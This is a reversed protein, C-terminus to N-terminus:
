TRSLKKFIGKQPTKDEYYGYGYTKSTTPVSNLVTAVNKFKNITIMRQFTRIFDKKSYNARFVYISLDARKMAMIGDTVLGIPPTDLVVFDYEKKLDELLASFEGNLLL